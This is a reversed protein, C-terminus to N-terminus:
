FCSAVLSLFCPDAIICVESEETSQKKKHTKACDIYDKKYRETYNEDDCLSFMRCAIGEGGGKKMIYNKREM